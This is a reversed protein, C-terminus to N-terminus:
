TEEQVEKKDEQEPYLTKRSGFSTRNTAEQESCLLGGGSCSGM